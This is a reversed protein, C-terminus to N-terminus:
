FSMVLATTLKTDLKELPVLVEGSAEGEPSSLPVAVLAPQNRYLWQLSVKLALHSTVSASLGHVMDARFDEVEELNDDFDLTNTYRANKGLGVELAWTLQAGFFTRDADPSEDVEAVHTLTAGYTTKLKLRERDFLTHGVGLVGQTRNEIGAFRDREWSAGTHWFFRESVRREFRGHLLYNEAKLESSSSEEVVFAEETGVASRQRDGSSARLGSAKLEATSKEWKHELRAKFGLTNAESNGSAQVYSLEAEAGWGLEPAKEEEAFSRAPMTLLLAIWAMHSTFRTPL